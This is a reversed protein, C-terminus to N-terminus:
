VSCRVSLLKENLFTKKTNKSFNYAWWYSDNWIFYNLNSSWYFNDPNIWLFCLLARKDWASNVFESITELENLTLVKHGQIKENNPDPSHPLWENSELDNLMISFDNIKISHDNIELSDKWRNWWDPNNKIVQLLKTYRKFMEIDKSWESPLIPIDSINLYSLAQSLESSTNNLENLFKIYEAYELQWSKSKNM